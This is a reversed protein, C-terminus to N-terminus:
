RVEIKVWGNTNPTIDINVGGITTPPYGCAESYTADAGNLYTKLFTGCICMTKPRAILTKGRLGLRPVEDDQKRHVHGYLFLDADWYATDKSFKTLDAGQTRSGGGWGHHYRIIVTRGGGSEMRFVLKFLGSYGLEKVDLRRCTRKIMNSGARKIITKEHNGYGLGLIRDKYPELLEVGKEVQADIIDDGESKDSSKQYRPDTVIIADYLDGIGLFYTKDNSDALYDRFAKEDCAVAGLHVDAIVKLQFKDGYKYPIRKTETIM